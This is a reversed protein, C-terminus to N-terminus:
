AHDEHSPASPSPESDAPDTQALGYRELLKPNGPILKKDVARKYAAARRKEPNKHYQSKSKTLVKLKFEPDSRIREKFRARQRERVAACRPCEMAACAPTEPPASM